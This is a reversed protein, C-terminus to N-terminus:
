QPASLIGAGVLDHQGRLFAAGDLARRGARRAAEFVLRGDSTVLALRGDHEVLTGVTDGARAPAVSARLVAVRGGATDVFSGPWPAHARVLRELERAPRIPDLRGDERRFPRTTTAGEAAQPLAPLAGALWRPITLALLGAGREAADKELAPATETGDLHWSTAAVIPGTDVGADMRFVTVGAEADGAAIEAPIPTAGRHRPLFSPHVNLIGHPPLELLAPPVIQGYDALVGLDPRLAAVAAIAEPDRVRGPTLVALGLATAHEAVPTAAPTRARGAPRAPATVVGVVAVEPLAALAGLIPVAFAGSGFFVTRAPDTARAPAAGPTM